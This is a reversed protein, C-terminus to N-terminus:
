WVIALTQEQIVQSLCFKVYWSYLSCCVDYDVPNRSLSRAGESFILASVV